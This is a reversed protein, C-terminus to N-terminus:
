LAYRLRLVSYVGVVDKENNFSPNITIQVDPTVNLHQTLQFGYFLEIGFQDRKSRDIPGGWSLGFGFYDWGFVNIGIGIMILHHMLAGDGESIGARIFPYYRGTINTSASFCWGWSEKTGKNARADQHWYTLHITEGAIILKSPNWGVEIWTFFENDEFFSKINNFVFNTPDGNADHIGVAAYFNNTLKFRGVIGLGQNPLAMAPSNFFAENMYYKYSNLLPFLDVWDGPDMIGILLAYKNDFLQKWYLNTLGWGFHKFSATSLASGAEYGLNRPTVGHGILHRNEIKFVLSGHYDDDWDSSAWTGFFRLIGSAAQRDSFSFSAYQNLFMYDLGLAINYTKKLHRKFNYYGKFLKNAYNTDFWTHKKTDDSKLEANVSNAGGTVKLEQYGSKHEGVKLSDYPINNISSSDQTFCWEAFILNLILVWLRITPQM